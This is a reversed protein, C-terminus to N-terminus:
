LSDEGFYTPPVLRIWSLCGIGSTDLVTMVQTSRATFVPVQFLPFVGLDDTLRQEALILSKDGPSQQTHERYTSLHQRAIAVSERAWEAVGTRDFKAIVNKLVASNSQASVSILVIWVDTSIYDESVQSRIGVQSLLDGFFLAIRQLAPESYGITIMEPIEGLRKLLAVGASPNHAIRRTTQESTCRLTHCSRISDSDFLMAAKAGDFQYYLATTLFGDRTVARNPNPVLVATLRTESEEITIDRLGSGLPRWDAFIDMSGSRLSEIIHEDVGPDSARSLEEFAITSGCSDTRPGAMAALVAPSRAAVVISDTTDPEFPLVAARCSDGLSGIVAEPLCETSSVGEMSSEIHATAIVYDGCWVRLLSGPFVLAETGVNLYVRGHKTQLIRSEIQGAALPSASLVFSAAILGILLCQM